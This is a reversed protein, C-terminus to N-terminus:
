NIDNNPPNVLLDQYFVKQKSLFEKFWKPMILGLYAFLLFFGGSIWALFLFITYGNITTFTFIIVDLAIGIFFGVQAMMSYGIFKMGISAWRDTVERSNKLAARFIGSYTIISFIMMSSSTILRIIELEDPIQWKPVGYYNWPGVVAVGILLSIFIFIRALNQDKEEGFVYLSFRILFCNAIMIGMYALGSTIKYLSRKEKLIYMELYGTIVLLIIISIMIFALMLWMTAPNRRECWRQIMQVAIFVSFIGVILYLPLIKEAGPDIPDYLPLEQLIM